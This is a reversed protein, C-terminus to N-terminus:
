AAQMLEQFNVEGTQLMTLYDDILEEYERRGEIIRPDDLTMTCTFTQHPFKKAVAFVIFKEAGTADLYFAGQRHYSYKLIREEFEERTTADTTKLDGITKGVWIDVKAKCDLNYKNEKFFIDQEKKALPNDLLYKLLANNRASKAMTAVKHRHTQYQPFQLPQSLKFNYVEPEFVAEHLQRGFELTERKVKMVPLGSRLCKVVGLRSNSLMDLAYYDQM